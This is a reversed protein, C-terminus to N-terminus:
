ASTLQFLSVCRMTYIWSGSTISTLGGSDLNWISPSLSALRFSASALPFMGNDKERVCGAEVGDVSSACSLDSASGSMVCLQLPFVIKKRRREQRIEVGRSHHPFCSRSVYVSEIMAVAVDGQQVSAM